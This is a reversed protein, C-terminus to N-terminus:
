CEAKVRSCTESAFATYGFDRLCIEWVYTEWAFLNAAVTEVCTWDFCFIQFLTEWVYTEWAATELLLELFLSFGWCFDRCLNWRLLTDLVFYTFCIHRSYSDSACADDIVVTEWAVSELMVNGFMCFLMLSKLYCFIFKRGVTFCLRDLLTRTGSHDFMNCWQTQMCKLQFTDISFIDMVSSAITELQFKNWHLQYQLGTQEISFTVKAFKVCSALSLKYVALSKSFSVCSALSHKCLVGFLHLRKFSLEGLGWCHRLANLLRM